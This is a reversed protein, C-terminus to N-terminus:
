VYNAKKENKSRYFVSAKVLDECDTVFIKGDILKIHSDQLFPLLHLAQKEKPMGCMNALDYPTIDFQHTTKPVLPIKAKEIQIALMDLLKMVPDTIQTNILNRNMSWLRESLTTTLRAILQSQTQVMQDFNNSNVVMLRCDEFAIASASRPKNELLAMEGFFDGQQLVALIVENDNVVKSIKVKGSQIIYMDYGTQCESFIMTGKPYFLFTDKGRELHVAKTKPKLAVFRQKAVDANKGNPCVKIYQYYGFVAQNFQKTKYYFDAITYLQELSPQVITNLTLQTLTENLIRMRNAFNHIIKLAVPTNNKILEPYQERKVSIVIVDTLAVATEIQSQGAMCSVVGIFDGPGLIVPPNNPVSTDKYCKVKGQQIIYFRDTRSKGEVL